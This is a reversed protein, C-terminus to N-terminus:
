DHIICEQKNKLCYKFACPRFRPLDNESVHLKEHGSQSDFFVNKFKWFFNFRESEWVPMLRACARQGVLNM